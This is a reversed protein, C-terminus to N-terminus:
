SQDNVTPVTHIIKSEIEDLDVRILRPGVRHATSITRVQDAASSPALMEACFLEANVRLPHTRGARASGCHRTSLSVGHAPSFPRRIPHRSASSAPNAGLTARASTQIKVFQTSRANLPKRM